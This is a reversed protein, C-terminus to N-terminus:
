NLFSCHLLYLRLWAQWPLSRFTACAFARGHPSPNSVAVAPLFPLDSGIDPIRVKVQPSQWQPASQGPVHTELRRRLGRPMIAPSRNTRTQPTRPQSGLGVLVFTVAFLLLGRRGM